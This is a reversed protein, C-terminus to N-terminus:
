PRSRGSCRRASSTRISCTAGSRGFCPRTSATSRRRWITAARRRGRQHYGGCVLLHARRKGHSRSRVIMSAGCTGCRAMEAVLYKSEAGNCPKGQLTGDPARLFTERTAQLRDHAAKWLADPVIRLAEDQTAIYDSAPRKSPRVTGWTDRKKARNWVVRGLYRENLLCNRVSSPAWTAPRDHQPRPSVAREANLIHAITRLGKGEACLTFMRRIVAAEQENVKREVHSRKPRGDKDVVGPLFVNVNTYGFVRGGGVHGAKAKRSLADHV